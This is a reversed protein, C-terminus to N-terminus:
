MMHMSSQYYNDNFNDTAINLKTEIKKLRQEINNLRKELDMPNQNMNQMYDFNNQNPMMPMMNPNYGYPIQPNM